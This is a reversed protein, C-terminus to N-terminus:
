LGFRLKFAIADIPRFYFAYRQQGWQHHTLRRKYWNKPSINQDIWPLYDDSNSDIVIEVECRAKKQFM